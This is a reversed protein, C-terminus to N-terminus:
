ILKTGIENGVNSAHQIYVSKVGSNIVEFANDLKPIMGDSIIGDAKLEQYFEFDMELILSSEDELNKMVGKKDFCFHLEVEWEENKALEKAIASAITDANTNFLQGNGDHTIACVVPLNGNEVLLNLIKGNVSNEKLDGAFGYDIDKVSRKVANILNADAGSLGIANQNYKNLQAVITKNTIGAYFGVVVQLTEADTIRRGDIMKPEIGMRKLQNTAGKGGGHVLIKAGEVKSFDELFQNLQDQDDIIGGGIKFIKLSNTIKKM